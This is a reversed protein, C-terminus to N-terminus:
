YEAFAQIQILHPNSCHTNVFPVRSVLGFLEIVYPITWAPDMDKGKSVFRGYGHVKFAFTDLKFIYALTRDFNTATGYMIM